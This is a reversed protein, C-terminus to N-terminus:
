LESDQELDEFNMGEFGFLDDYELVVDLLNDASLMSAAAQTVEDMHQRKRDTGDSKVGGGLAGVRAKVFCGEPYNCGNSPSPRWVWRQHHRRNDFEFTVTNETPNPAM